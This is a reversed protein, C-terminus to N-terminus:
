ALQKTVRFSRTPAIESPSSHLEDTYSLSYTKEDHISDPTDLSMNEDQPEHIQDNPGIYADVDAHDLLNM